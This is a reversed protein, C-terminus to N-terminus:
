IASDSNTDYENVIGKVPGENSSYILSHNAEANITAIIPDEQEM